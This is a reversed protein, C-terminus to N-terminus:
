TNVLGSILEDFTLEEQEGTGMDRVIFSGSEIEKDGVILVKEANRSDARKLQRSLGGSRFEAQVGIGKERLKFLLDLCYPKAKDGLPLLLLPIGPQVSSFVDEGRSALLAREVGFAFGIAPTAPGGMEQMLYDYRGGGCVTDQAGLERSKFEVVTRSYYDLGRVLRPNEEYPIQFIDLGAKVQSFHDACGPCLYDTQLPADSLIRQCSKQKCDFVRLPNREARLRCDDCLEDAHQVLFDKLKKIYGPRCERCGISNLEIFMEHIGISTFLDFGIKVLEADIQPDGEGIIEAGIQTHERYRGKQPKDQRFMPMVYWLRAPLKISNELVARMVSPTGEPRLALDRGGMDQFRYMEKIVIDSSEGTSRKYLEYHEFTPTLVPHFGAPALLEFVKEELERRAAAERPLVDRTGKVRRFKM